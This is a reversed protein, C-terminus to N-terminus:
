RQILPRTHDTFSLVLGCWSNSALLYSHCYAVCPPHWHSQHSRHLLSSPSGLDACTVFNAKVQTWTPLTSALSHVLSVVPYSMHRRVVSAVISSHPLRPAWRLSAGGAVHPGKLAYVHLTIADTTGHMCIPVAFQMTAGAQRSGPGWNASRSELSATYM